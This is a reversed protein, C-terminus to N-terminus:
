IRIGLSGHYYGQAGQAPQRPTAQDIPWFVNGWHPLTPHGITLRLGQSLRNCLFILHRDSSYAQHQFGQWEKGFWGCSSVKASSIINRVKEQHLKPRLLIIARTSTILWMFVKASSINWWKNEQHYLFIAIPLLLLSLHLLRCGVVWLGCFVFVIDILCCYYYWYRCPM